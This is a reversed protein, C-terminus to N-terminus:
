VVNLERLPRNDLVRAWGLRSLDLSRFEGHLVLEALARGVAPAHQLGHGSFGNAFLLNAIDPHAGLIMNHDLVNVDYHGAWCRQVRLAEFGEIRAALAPWIVEDFLAHQVEFDDCDPDADEPPAVGCLWGTGEPRLYVGSPDILLPCGPTRAPSGVHFVSRKRAHVPLGIGASRALAAAGTGAANILTGCGITAGDDLQVAEIRRGSRPLRMVRARRYTAGLAVAKRKLARMLAYADLWGEGSLGLAGGALSDTRLWSFRQQLQATDLLAVDAGLERQLRHNAQLTTLGADRALFLYGGEHWGVDPAEGDVALARGIDRVFQTGFISMRINEAVSFQHRVSAVSLATACRQWSPDQELVLLTGDFQADAQLFYAAASGVVAGGVIVVDFHEM